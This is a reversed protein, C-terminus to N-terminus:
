FVAKLVNINFLQFSLNISPKISFFQKQSLCVVLLM